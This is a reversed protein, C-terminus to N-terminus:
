FTHRVGAFYNRGNQYPLITTAISSGKKVDASELELTTRKSLHYYAKVGTKEMEGIGLPVSVNGSARSHTVATTWNGFKYEVGVYNNKHPSQLPAAEEQNFHQYGVKLGKAVEYWAGYRHASEGLLGSTMTAAAGFAGRAYELTHAHFDHNGGYDVNTVFGHGAGASMYKNQPGLATVYSYKFGMIEPTTYQTAASFRGYQLTGNAGYPSDEQFLMKDATGTVNTFRGFRLSGFQNSTVRVAAQEFMGPSTPSITTNLASAGSAADWRHQLQVDLSLDNNIKETALFNLHNRDTKMGGVSATGIAPKRYGYEVSGTVSVTQAMVSSSAAIAAVLILKKM